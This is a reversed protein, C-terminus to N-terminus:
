SLRPRFQNLDLGNIVGDADWDFAAQYGTTGASKGYATRFTAYDAATTAGDGTLDGFRRRVAGVGLDAAPAFGGVATRVKTRDVSVAWDGDALSGSETNAGAFALSVVTRGDAAAAPALVQGVAAGDARVVRFAGADVAVAGAFTVTYGTM